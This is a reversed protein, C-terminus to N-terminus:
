GYYNGDTHQEMKTLHWYNCFRCRYANLNNERAHQKGLAKDKTDYKKKRICSIRERNRSGHIRHYLDRRATDAKSHQQYKNAM